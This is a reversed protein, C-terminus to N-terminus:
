KGITKVTSGDAYKTIYVQGKVQENVRQGNLNYIGTVQQNDATKVEEIGTNVTLNLIYSKSSMLDEGFTIVTVTKDKIYVATQANTNLPTAVIDSATPLKDVTIAYTTNDTTFGSVPTGFVSLNALGANYVLSLDDVYLEDGESGKAPSANTSITVLIAKGEVNNEEYKFPITLEQWAFDNTEIKANTAKAVVNTYTKDEPDQYRTGDTIVANVTAYPYSAQATAQKFKVWVKVADPRGNLVTYYPDGNNDKDTNSLDLFAHNKTDSASMSGANMRGTTVTGNAVFSLIQTAKVLLSKSGVTNPRVEEESVFTHATGKVIGALSGTCSAFSHWHNPEDITSNEKHFLEFDSNPIQYVASSFFVKISMEGFPIDINAKLIDGSITAMLTVPIPDQLLIPGLWGQSDDSGAEVIINQTSSLKIVGKEDTGSVNTLEIKGVPITTEETELIFNDLVLRYTNAATNEVSIVTKQPDAPSDNVVVALNGTYDTAWATLASCAVTMILTFIKKM